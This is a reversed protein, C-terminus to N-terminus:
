KGSGAHHESTQMIVPLYTALVRDWGEYRALAVTDAAYGAVVIKGNPQLGIATGVDTSASFDTTVVEGVGFTEDLAGDPQYRVLAFSGGGEGLPPWVYGAVLIKEAQNFRRCQRRAGM